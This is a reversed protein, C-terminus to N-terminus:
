EIEILGAKNIKIIKTKSLDTKLALTIECWAAGVGSPPVIYTTPDPPIFTIYIKDPSGGGEKQIDNIKVEKELEITEVHEPYSDSVCVNGTTYQHNENCDAYIIYSGPSGEDFYIGYGGVPVFEQGSPVQGGLNTKEASMAMQQARRIDQALKSASRQLAFQQGGQRYNAFIIGSILVIIFLTVLVEVLTFGRRGEKVLNLMKVNLTIQAYNPCAIDLIM